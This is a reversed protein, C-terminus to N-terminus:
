LSMTNVSLPPNCSSAGHEPYLADMYKFAASGRSTFIFKLLNLDAKLQSSKLKEILVKFKADYNPIQSLLYSQDKQLQNQVFAYEKVAQSHITDLYSRYEAIVEHLSSKYPNSDGKLGHHCDAMMYNRAIQNLAVLVNKFPESWESKRGTMEHLNSLFVASQATKAKVENVDNAFIFGEIALSQEKFCAEVDANALANSCSFFATCTLFVAVVLKRSVM